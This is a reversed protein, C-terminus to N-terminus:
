ASSCLAVCAPESHVLVFSLEGGVFSLSDRIDQFFTKHSQLIVVQAFFFTFIHTCYIIVKIKIVTCLVPTCFKKWCQRQCQYLPKDHSVSQEKHKCCDCIWPSTQMTVKLPKSTGGGVPGTQIKPAVKMARQQVSNSRRLLRIPNAVATQCSTLEDAMGGDM